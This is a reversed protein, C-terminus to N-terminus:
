PLEGFVVSPEAGLFRCVLALRQESLEGSILFLSVHNDSVAAQSVIVSRPLWGPAIRREADEGPPGSIASRHALPKRGADPSLIQYSAKATDGTRARIESQRSRGEFWQSWGSLSVAGVM